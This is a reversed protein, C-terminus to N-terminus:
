LASFRVPDACTNNAARRCERPHWAGSRAEPVVVPRLSPTERCHGRNHLKCNGSCFLNWYHALRDVCLTSFEWWVTCCEGPKEPPGHVTPERLAGSHGYPVPPCEVCGLLIHIGGCRQPQYEGRVGVFNSRQAGMQQFITFSTAKRQLVVNGKTTHEHHLLM